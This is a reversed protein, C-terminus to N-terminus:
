GAAFPEDATRPQHMPCGNHEGRFAVSAAYAQRRVRMVSGIPRHAAIGHWPSFSLRDDIAPSREDDWASQAPLVLRALPVHPSHSEPWPVSPDEIPMAETDNCLQARLLWEGGQTAFWAKVADRLGFPHDKLDLPHEILAQLSESVPVLSLKAMYPGHLLAGQTHFSEGLIHTMPHGGLARIRGSPMGLRELVRETSRRDRICM